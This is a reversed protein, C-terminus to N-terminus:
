SMCIRYRIGRLVNAGNLVHRDHRASVKDNYTYTYEDVHCFLNRETDARPAASKPPRAVCFVNIKRIYLVLHPAESPVDCILAPGKVLWIRATGIKGDVIHNMSKYRFHARSKTVDFVLFRAVPFKRRYGCANMKSPGSMNIENM